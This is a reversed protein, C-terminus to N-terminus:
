KSQNKLFRYLILMALFMMMFPSAWLLFTQPKIPPNMLISDSYSQVFMTLVEQKSAGQKLEKRIIDRMSVAVKARSDNISEGDCTVCRIQKFIEKAKAELAQNELRNEVSLAYSNFSFITFFLLIYKM